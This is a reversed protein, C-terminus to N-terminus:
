QIDARVTRPGPGDGITGVTRRAGHVLTIIVGHAENADIEPEFADAQRDFRKLVDNRGLDAGLASRALGADDAALDDGAARDVEDVRGM